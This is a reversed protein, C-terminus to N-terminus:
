RTIVLKKSIKKNECLANVFYIGTKLKNTNINETNLGVLLDKETSYVTKGLM